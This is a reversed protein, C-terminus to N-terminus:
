DQPGTTETGGASTPDTALGACQRLREMKDMESAARTGALPVPLSGEIVAPKWEFGDIRSGTVRVLLVGTERGAASGPRFIFNGLGYAVLRDGMFGVGQLRHAHSGVVIDAGADFLSAALEKQRDNPCTETERGYHLFVVVTDAHERTAAVTDLLRQQHIGKASAIGAQDDTATWRAQLSSDFVDNAGIFAVRQGRVEAIFPSMADSEDNGIGVVPLRGGSRIELSSALGGEGFDMGHNNAMTVVDVGAAALADLTAAPTQFTFTKPEPSGGTGLAAELNVMTLDASNLLPAISRLLGQPDAAISPGLGQFSSDGAFAITIQEGNGLPGREPETSTTVTTDSTPSPDAGDVPTTSMFDDASGVSSSHGEESGACGITIVGVTLCIAMVTMRLWRSRM